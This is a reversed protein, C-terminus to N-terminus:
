AAAEFAPDLRWIGDEHSLFAGELADPAEEAGLVLWGGPAIAGALQRLVRRQAEPTMEDLVYRCLVVDFSGLARFEANLNLRRWRVMARVRPSISWLEERPEFHRALVRIPLGRQVEFQTYLGSQAKELSRESLDAGLIDVGASLVETECDDLMLALSYTEQGGGCGASLLRIPQGAPRQAAREPLIEDRLRRFVEPDRFFSTEGQALAEVVSWLLKEERRQRACVLMERISGFGERRAVPTLRSELLYVKEPDVLLGAGARAVELVFDIEDRKM